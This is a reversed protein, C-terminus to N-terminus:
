TARKAKNTRQGLKLAAGLKIRIEAVAKAAM